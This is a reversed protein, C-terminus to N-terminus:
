SGSEALQIVILRDESFIPTTPSPSFYNVKERQYGIVKKNEKFLRESLRELSDGAWVQPIAQLQLANHGPTMLEVFLESTGHQHSTDAMITSMISSSSILEDAGAHNAHSVYEETLLEVVTFLSPNVAKVTLLTMVSLADITTEDESASGATILVTSAQTTNANKLTEQSSPDGKIFTLQPVSPLPHEELHNDILVIRLTPYLSTLQKIAKNSRANWGIIIMHNEKHFPKTGQERKTRDTIITSAFNSVFVTVFGFGGIVLLGAVVRTIGEEPVYDGYGVTTLTIISWWLGDTFHPFTDPELKTAVYAATSLLLTLVLILRFLLSRSPNNSSNSNSQFAM